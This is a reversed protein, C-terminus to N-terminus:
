KMDEHIVVSFNTGYHSSCVPSNCSGKEKYERRIFTKSIRTMSDLKFQHLLVACEIENLIFHYLCLYSNNNLSAYEIFFLM